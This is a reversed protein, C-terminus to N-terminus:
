PTAKDPPTTRHPKSLFTGQTGWSKMLRAVRCRAFDVVERRMQHWVKRVGYVRINANFDRKIEPRFAEALLFRDSRRAPERRQALADHCTSPANPLM